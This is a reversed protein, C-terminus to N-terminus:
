GGVAFAPSGPGKGPPLASAKVPFGNVRLAAMRRLTEDIRFDQIGVMTHTNNLMIKGAPMAQSELLLKKLRGMSLGQNRGLEIRLWRWIWEVVQTKGILDLRARAAKGHEALVDVTASRPGVQVFGVAEVPLGTARVLEGPTPMPSTAIHVRIRVTGAAPPPLEDMM